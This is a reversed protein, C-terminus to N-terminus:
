GCLRHARQVSVFRKRPYLKRAMQRAALLGSAQVVVSTGDRFFVVYDSM